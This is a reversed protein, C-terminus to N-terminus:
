CPSLCHCKSCANACNTLRASMRQQSLAKPSSVKLNLWSAPSAIKTNSRNTAGDHSSSHKSSASPAKTHRAQKNLDTRSFRVESKKLVCIEPGPSMGAAFGGFSRRPSSGKLFTLPTSVLLGARGMSAHNFNMLMMTNGSTGPLHCTPAPHRCHCAIASGKESCTWHSELIITCSAQRLKM